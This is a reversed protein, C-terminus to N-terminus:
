KDIVPKCIFQGIIGYLAICAYFVIGILPNLLSLAVAIIFASDIILFGITFRKIMQIKTRKNILKYGNSAYIWIFLVMLMALFGNVGYFIVAAKSYIHYEGILATSFPILSIFMLFIINIWIFKPDSYKIFRFLNHIGFWFGGLVIFSLVFAIFKPWMEILMGTLERSAQLKPIIPVALEIVLLTMVIAFIGDSLTAIRKPSFGINKM